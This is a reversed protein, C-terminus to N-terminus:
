RSLGSGHSRADASVAQPSAVVTPKAHEQFLRCATRARKTPRCLVDAEGRGAHSLRKLHETSFFEVAERVDGSDIAAKVVEFGKGFLRSPISPEFFGNWGGWYNRGEVEPYFFSILEQKTNEHNAMTCIVMCHLRPSM